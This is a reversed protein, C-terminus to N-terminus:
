YKKVLKIPRPDSNFYLFYVGLPLDSILLDMQEGSMADTKVIKGSIEALSIKIHTDNGPISIRVVESTPNPYVLINRKSSKSIRLPDVLLIYFSVQTSDLGGFDIGGNDKLKLVCNVYGSFTGNATYRLANGEIFPQQSFASPLDVSLSWSLTQNSENLPGPNATTIFNESIRPVDINATDNGRVVLNPPDNVAQINLKSNFITSDIGGFFTGGNDRLLVKLPFSGNANPVLNIYLIGEIVLNSASIAPSPKLQLFNVIQLTDGITNGPSPNQVFNPFAPGQQDEIAEILTDVLATPRTNPYYQVSRIRNNNVDTILFRKRALDTVLSTPGTFKAGSFFGNQYGTANMYTSVLPYDTRVTRLIGENQFGGVFLNKSLSDYSLKSIGRFRAATGLGDTNGLNGNGAWVKVFGSDISIRRIRLGGDEGVFLNKGAFELSFPRNFRSALLTSDKFGSTSGAFTTVATTQTNIVRIRHNQVDTVYLLNGRLALDQPRNFRSFRGQPKDVMGSTDSGAVWKVEGTKFLLLKVKNAFPETFYISDGTQSIALNAPKNLRAAQGIGMVNGPNGNGAITRVRNSALDLMRIANNNLDTFVITDKGPIKVMDYPSYLIANEGIGDGILGSGAITSVIGGFSIRRIRRNVNDCVLWGSDTRAIGMPNTFRSIPGPGESFGPTGRAGAFVQLANTKLAYRLVTHNSSNAVFLTDLRKSLALQRPGLLSTEAPPLPFALSSVQKTSRILRRVRSNFRDSIYVTDETQSLILSSIKNFRALSDVGDAFGAIGFKGALTRYTGNLERLLVRHGTGGGILLRGSRECVVADLESDQLTDIVTIQGTSRRYMKLINGNSTFFLSDGRHSLALGSVSVQGTAITRVTKRKINLERISAFNDIGPFPSVFLYGQDAIYALSDRSVMQWPNLFLSELSKGDQPISNGAETRVFRTQSFGFKAWTLAIIIFLNVIFNRM